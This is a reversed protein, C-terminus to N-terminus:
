YRFVDGVALVEQNEEDFTVYEGTRLAATTMINAISHNYGGMVDANPKERSRVCKMWNRMHSSTMDDVGTDADTRVESKAELEFEELLNPEMGMPEAYRQTLGGNPTVKNTALNLEGGNTAVSRPHPLDSFWHVTDIQHAIWQGPIGSSYPWFLRYELYKRPNWEEYPQDMLYREWDTDEKRIEKTLEPLRWRGPQNVHWTMEVNVIDGFGGSKIFEEAAYYNRGSRRQSGIQVIKGTEEVAKRAARNDEITEAFPKEVYVDCVAQKCHHTHQFDATSIIVADVEGAEYLEENNRM